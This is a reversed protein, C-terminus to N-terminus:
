DAVMKAYQSMDALSFKFHSNKRAITRKVANSAILTYRM